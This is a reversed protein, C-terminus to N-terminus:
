CGIVLIIVLLVDIQIFGSVLKDEGDDMLRNLVKASSEGLDNSM